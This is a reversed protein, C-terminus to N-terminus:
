PIVTLLLRECSLEWSPVSDPTLESEAGYRKLYGKFNNNAEYMGLLDREVKLSTKCDEPQRWEDNTAVFYTNCFLSGCLSLALVIM